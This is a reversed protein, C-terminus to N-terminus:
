RNLYSFIVSSLKMSNHTITGEETTLLDEVIVEYDVDKLKDYDLSEAKEIDEWAGQNFSKDDITGSDTSMGVKLNSDVAGSSNGCGVWGTTIFASLIVALAKKKM